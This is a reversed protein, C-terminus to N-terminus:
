ILECVRGLSLLNGVGHDYLLEFGQKVACTRIRDVRQPRGYCVIALFLRVGLCGRRGGLSGVEVEVFGVM